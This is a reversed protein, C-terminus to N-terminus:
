GILYNIKFKDAVCGNLSTIRLIFQGSGPAFKLDFQDFELEDLDKNTPAEYAVNGILQSTSSVDTDMIVFESTDIGSSGFDIETQKINTSSAGPNVWTRDDRFFKTGDPTGTALQAVPVKSTADLSPYGNIAGKNATAEVSSDHKVSTHSQPPANGSTDFNHVNITISAHATIASNRETVGDITTVGHTATLVAHAPIPDSPTGHSHDRRSFDASVGVVTSQGFSTEGVVTDGPAPVLPASPTGHTHDGRSYLKSTGANEAQGFTKETIVSDDPSVVAGENAGGVTM